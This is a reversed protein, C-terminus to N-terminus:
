LQFTQLCLFECWSYFLIPPCAPTMVYLLTCRINYLGWQTFTLCCSFIFLIMYKEEGNGSCQKNNRHCDHQQGFLCRKVITSLLIGYFHMLSMQWPECTCFERTYNVPHKYKQMMEICVAYICYQNQMGSLVCDYEQRFNLQQTCSDLVADPNLDTRLLLSLTTRIIYDGSYHYGTKTVFGPKFSAQNRDALHLNVKGSPRM